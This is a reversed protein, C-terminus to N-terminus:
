GSGCRRAPLPRARARPDAPVPLAGGPPPAAPDPADRPTRSRRLGLTADLRIQKNHLRHPGRRRPQARAEVPHAPSARSSTSTTWSISDDSEYHKVVATGPQPAPPALARGASEPTRDAEAMSSPWPRALQARRGGDAPRGVGPLPGAIAKQVCLLAWAAGRASVLPVALQSIVDRLGPPPDRARGPARARTSAISSRWRACLLRAGARPQHQACRASAAAVGLLGEGSCSRRLRRRFAEYGRTSITDLRQGTEDALLLFPTSTASLWRSAGRAAGRRAGRPRPLGRHPAPLRRAGDASRPPSPGAQWRRCESRSLSLVRLSTPGACCRVGEGDPRRPSRALSRACQERSPAGRDETREFSLDLRYQQSAARTSVIV